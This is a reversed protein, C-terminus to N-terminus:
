CRKIDRLSPYLITHLDRKIVRQCLSIVELNIEFYINRWRWADVVELIWGSDIAPHCSDERPFFCVAIDLYDVTATMRSAQEM